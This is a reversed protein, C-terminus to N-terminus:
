PIPAPPPPNIFLAMWRQWNTEQTVIVVPTPTPTPSPKYPAMPIVLYEGQRGMKNEYGYQEAASDSTAKVLLHELAAQTQLRDSLRTAVM